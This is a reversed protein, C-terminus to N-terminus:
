VRYQVGVTQVAPHPTVPNCFCSFPCDRVEIFVLPLNRLLKKKLSWSFNTIFLRLHKRGSKKKKIPFAHIKYCKRKNQKWFGVQVSCSLQTIGPQAIMGCTPCLLIQHPCSPNSLAQFFHAPSHSLSMASGLWSPLDTLQPGSTCPLHGSIPM